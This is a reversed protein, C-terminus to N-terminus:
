PASGARAGHSRSRDKARKDVEEQLVEEVREAMSKLSFHAHIHESCQEALQPERQQWGVASALQDVLGSVDGSEFLFRQFAGTLIEPTGGVRTALVPRGSAMGELVVRCLGETVSPLVVVDAAHLATIVDRDMPLWLCGEPAREHLERLYGDPDDALVPRGQLVLRGEDASMGLQRWAGFLLDLGKDADLRGYYLAIFLDPALGLAQRAQRREAEGGLPYMHPDIGSHVVEVRASDLGDDVWSDRTAGSVAIYRDAWRGLRRTTGDQFVDHLHCVAPARAVTGTLRAAIVDRFRHGYVVDPRRRAGSWIAPLLRAGDRASLKNVSMWSAKVSRCFSQYEARLEGDREYLVDVSNGRESLARAIQLSGIEIGGERGLSEAYMLIRM